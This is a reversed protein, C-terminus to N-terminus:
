EPEAADASPKRIFQEFVVLVVPSADGIETLIRKVRMWDLGGLGGGLRPIGIREVGAALALEVMRSLSKSLAPLKAKKKWHEQIGLSYVTEEGETWVFVDGLGFRHDACRAHYEEFMRPWLKKFAVSVGADMTGACNCAHAYAHLGETAFIDGTIFITPM